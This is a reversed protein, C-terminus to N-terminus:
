TEKERAMLMNRVLGYNIPTKDLLKSATEARFDANWKSNFFKGKVFKESKEKLIQQAVFGVYAKKYDLQQEKNTAKLKLIKM